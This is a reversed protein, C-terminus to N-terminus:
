DAGEISKQDFGAISKGTTRDYLMPCIDSIPENSIIVGASKLNVVNPARWDFPKPLINPM